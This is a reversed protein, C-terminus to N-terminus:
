LIDPLIADDKGMDATVGEVNIVALPNSCEYLVPDSLKLVGTIVDSTVDDMGLLIFESLSDDGNTRDM